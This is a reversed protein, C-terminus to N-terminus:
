PQNRSAGSIKRTNRYIGHMLRSTKLAEDLNRGSKASNKIERAKWEKLSREKRRERL